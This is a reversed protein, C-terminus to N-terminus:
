LQPVLHGNEVNLRDLLDKRMAVREQQDVANKFEFVHTDDCDLVHCHILGMECPVERALCDHGGHQNTFCHRLRGAYEHAVANLIAGAIEYTKCGNLLRVEPM